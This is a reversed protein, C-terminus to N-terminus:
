IVVAGNRIKLSRKIKLPELKDEAELLTKNLLLMFADEDNEATGNMRQERKDIYAGAAAFWAYDNRYPESTNFEKLACPLIEHHTLIALYKEYGQAILWMCFDKHKMVGKDPFLSAVYQALESNFYLENEVTEYIARFDVIDQVSKQMLQNELWKLQKNEPQVSFENIVDWFEKVNM